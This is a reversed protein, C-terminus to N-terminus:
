SEPKSEEDISKTNPISEPQTINNDNNSNNESDKDRKERDWLHILFDGTGILTLLYVAETLVMTVNSNVTQAYESEPYVTIAIDPSTGLYQLHIGTENSFLMQGIPRYTGELEWKISANGALKNPNTTKFLHITSGNYNLMGNDDTKLNYPRSNQFWVSIDIIDFGSPTELYAIGSIDVRDGTTLTSHPQHVTLDIQWSINHKEEGTLINITNSLSLPYERPQNLENNAKNWENLSPCVFTLSVFLFLGAIIIALWQSNTRKRLWNWCMKLKGIFQNHM